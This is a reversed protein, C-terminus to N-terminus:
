IKVEIFIKLSCTFRQVLVVAYTKGVSFPSSKHQPLIHQPMLIRHFDEPFGKGPLNQMSIKRRRFIEM